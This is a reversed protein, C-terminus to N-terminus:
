DYDKAILSKLLIRSEAFRVQMERNNFEQQISYADGRARELTDYWESFYIVKQLCTIDKGFSEERFWWNHKLNRLHETDVNQEASLFQPEITNLTELALALHSSIDEISPQELYKTVRENGIMDKYRQLTNEVTHVHDSTIARNHAVANRIPEIQRLLELERKNKLIRQFCDKWNENREIIKSINPFDIYYIPHTTLRTKFIREDDGRRGDKMKENVEKPVRHKYVKRGLGELQELEDVILERLITELELLLPYCTSNNKLPSNQM